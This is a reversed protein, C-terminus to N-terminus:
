WYQADDPSIEPLEQANSRLAEAELRAAEAAAGDPAPPEPQAAM